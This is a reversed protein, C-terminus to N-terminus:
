SVVPKMDASFPWIDQDRLIKVTPKM